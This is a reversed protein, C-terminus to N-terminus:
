EIVRFVEKASTIGKLVKLLGDQVMTIMEQKIALEKIKEESVESSLISEKIEPTMVLVEYIGVRGKYGFQNCKECGRGRYFKLQDQYQYDKPLKQLIIKIRELMEESIKEEEKCFPCIKRVLRQGIIVNLAPSLLFSKVNMALFRPITAAASNAHLTSIVLHGTLAANIAIEATELDRIEGVMVVDPDQRLIAKLGSAFNYKKSPNIQSQNIGKLKYEIPDELTIIKIGPENLKNLIAYLTTTKGSGTPGTTLIMGNTKKVERKLLNFARDCLGLDEFSLGVKSSKLLRMVVSEGFSTPLCSIRVDIRDNTLYITFRGDQPKDIINIKLSAILKIRSIIKPWITKNLTAITYLIGDIRFRIKVDEEEAEIHIDSAESKISSAILMTIVDTLSAYKIKERFDDLNTFENQFKILNEESIEIGRKVEKVKPLFNYQNIAFQFSEESTLYVIIKCHYIKELESILKSVDSTSPNICALRIETQTKFFCIVRFKKAQEQEILILAELNITFKKLNIYNLGFARARAQTEEEKRFSEMEQMKKKLKEEPGNSLIIATKKPKNKKNLLDYITYDSM